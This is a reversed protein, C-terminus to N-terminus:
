FMKYQLDFVIKDRGSLNLNLVIVKFAEELLVFNENRRERLKKKYCTTQERM